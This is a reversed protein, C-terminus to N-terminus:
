RACRATEEAVTAKRTHKGRKGRGEKQTYKMITTKLSRNVTEM